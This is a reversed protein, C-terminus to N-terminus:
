PLCIVHSKLQGQRTLGVKNTFLSNNFRICILFFFFLYNASHTQMLPLARKEYYAINSIIELAHTSIEDDFKPRILGNIGLM